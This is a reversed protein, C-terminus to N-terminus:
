GYPLSAQRFTLRMPVVIGDGPQDKVFVGGDGLRTLQWGEAALGAAHTQLTSRLERGIAPSRRM